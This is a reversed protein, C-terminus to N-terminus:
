YRRSYKQAGSLCKTGHIISKKKYQGDKLIKDQKEPNIRNIDKHQEQFLQKLGLDDGDKEIKSDFLQKLLTNLYYEKDSIKFRYSGKHPKLTKIDKFTNKDKRYLLGNQNIYAQTNDIRKFLENNIKITKEDITEFQGNINNFLKRLVLELYYIKNNIKFKDYGRTIKNDYLNKLSYQSRRHILGYKNIYTDTEDIRRFIEGDIDNIEIDYIEYAM